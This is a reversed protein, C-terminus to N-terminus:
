ADPAEAESLGEAGQEMASLMAKDLMEHVLTTGDEKERKLEQVVERAFHSQDVVVPWSVARDAEPHADFATALTSAGIRVVLCGDRVEVTLPSAADPLTGDPGLLPALADALRRMDCPMDDVGCAYCPGDADKQHEERVRAVLAGLTEDPM